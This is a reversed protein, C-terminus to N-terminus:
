NYAKLKDSFYAALEPYNIKFSEQDTEYLAFYDAVKERPESRWYYLTPYDKIQKNLKTDRLFLAHGIEHYFTQNIDDAQYSIYVVKKGKSEWYCGNVDKAKCDLDPKETFIVSIGLISIIKLIQLM